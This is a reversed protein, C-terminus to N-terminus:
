FATGVCSTALGTLRGEKYEIYPIGRRKSGPRRWGEGAGCKLGKWTNRIEKRCHGLRQVM